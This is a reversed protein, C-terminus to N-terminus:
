QAMSMFGPIRAYMEFLVVGLSWCDVKNSYEINNILLEPAIYHAGQKLTQSSIIHIGRLSSHM